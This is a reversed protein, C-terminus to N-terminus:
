AYFNPFIACICSFSSGHPLEKPKPFPSFPFSVSFPLNASRKMFEHLGTKRKAACETEGNGYKMFHQISSVRRTAHGDATMTPSFGSPPSFPRRILHPNAFHKMFEHLATKESPPV